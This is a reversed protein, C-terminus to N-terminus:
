GTLYESFALVYAYPIFLVTLLLCLGARAFVGMSRQEPDTAIYNSIASAVAGMSAVFAGILLPIAFFDNNVWFYDATGDRGGFFILAYVLYIGFIVWLAIRDM